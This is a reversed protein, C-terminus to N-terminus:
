RLWESPGSLVRGDRGVVTVDAAPVLLAVPRGSKTITFSKGDRGVDRIREGPEARLESMTITKM